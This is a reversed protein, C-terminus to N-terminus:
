VRRHGLRLADSAAGRAPCTVTTGRLETPTPASAAEAGRASEPHMFLVGIDSGAGAALGRPVDGARHMPPEDATRGIRRKPVHCTQHSLRTNVADDHDVIGDVRLREPSDDRTEIEHRSGGNTRQDLLVCASGRHSRSHRCEGCSDSSTAASRMVLCPM